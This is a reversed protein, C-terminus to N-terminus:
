NWEIAKKRLSWFCYTVDRTSAGSLKFNDLAQNAFYGGTELVGDVKAEITNYMVLFSHM